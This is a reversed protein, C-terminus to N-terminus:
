GHAGGEAGQRFGPDAQTNKTEPLAFLLTWSRTSSSM